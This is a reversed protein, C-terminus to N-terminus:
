LPQLSIPETKSAVVETESVGRAWGRMLQLAMKSRGELM